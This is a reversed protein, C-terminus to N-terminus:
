LGLMCIDYDGFDMSPGVALTSHLVRLRTIAIFTTVHVRTVMAILTIGLGQLAIGRGKNWLIM